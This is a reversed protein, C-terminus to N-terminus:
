FIMLKPKPAQFRNSAHSRYIIMLVDSNLKVQVSILIHGAIDNLGNLFMLM